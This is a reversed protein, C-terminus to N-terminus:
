EDGRRPNLAEQLADAFINGSFVLTFMLVLAGFLSWWVVPDRGMEMRSANIMNGWSYATPDVGVGVYSLVAEALVLGSFDLIVTIIVIHMLNPMIHRRIIKLPRTGLSIASQVFDSERLKLTEGRLLRCLTTWSTVGLIICLIVLRLDPDSQVFLQFSLMAAAILLVGPVSSLTTYTYQIIDDVRGGFYGAWMGLLLAFPLTVLMTVTGIVLGTRISKVALYFVDRGVKDTGLIHYEPVLFAIISILCIICGLTLWFTLIMRGYEPKKKTQKYKLSYMGHFIGYVLATLLVGLTFGSIIKHGIDKYKDQPNKLNQGAYQLKPFVEQITGDPNKVIEPNLAHTSFPASYTEESQNNRPSFLVDLVSTVNHSQNNYKFHLTDLFGILVYTILIMLVVLYRPREIIRQRILHWEDTKRFSWLWILFGVILLYILADTWGIVIRM